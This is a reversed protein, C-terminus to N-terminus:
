NYKFIIVQQKILHGFSNEKKSKERWFIIQNQSNLM